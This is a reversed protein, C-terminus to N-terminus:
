EEETADSHFMLYDGPQESNNDLLANLWEDLLAHATERANERSDDVVRNSEFSDGSMTYEISFWYRM